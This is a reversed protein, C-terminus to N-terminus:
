AQEGVIRVPLVVHLEDHVGVPQILMPKTGEGMKIVVDSEGVGNLADNLYRVNYAALVEEGEVECPISETFSSEEDNSEVTLEDAGARLKVLHNKDNTISARKLTELLVKGDVHVEAKFERPVFKKYDIYNGGILVTQMLTDADRYRLAKGDTILEVDEAGANYALMSMLSSAAGPVIVDQGGVAHHVDSKAAGMRVGDLAVTVIRDPKFSMLVGTLQMLTDNQSVAYQVSNIAKSIKIGEASASSTEGDLAKVPPHESEGRTLTFRAKGGKIEVTNGAGSALTNIAVMDSAISGVITPFRKGDLMVKGSEMCECPVRKSVMFISNVGQVTLVGADAQVEIFEHSPLVPHATIAKAVVKLARNLEDKNVRVKM